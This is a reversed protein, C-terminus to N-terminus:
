SRRYRKIRRFGRRRKKKFSRASWFKDYMHAGMGRTGPLPAYKIGRSARAAVTIGRRAFPAYVASTPLYSRRTPIIVAPAVPGTTIMPPSSRKSDGVVLVPAQRANNVRLGRATVAVLGATGIARAMNRRRGQPLYNDVGRDVLGRAIWYGARAVNAMSGVPGYDRNGRGFGLM